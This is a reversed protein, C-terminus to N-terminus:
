HEAYRLCWILCTGVLALIAWNRGRFPVARSSIERDALGLFGPVVIAAILLLWLAPEAIFVFSGAYWRPNFPFFPRVGYNNTWDLLIHSLLAILSLVYIWPWHVPAPTEKQSDAHVARHRRHGFWRHILWIVGTVVAAEFPIGLFTHTWGRHHEFGAVPGEFGWLVDLDPTEAALTMALTAYAAKRNLGARSLVAGTMLHTVPEMHTGAYRAQHGISTIHRCQWHSFRLDVRKQRREFAAPQRLRLPRVGCMQQGTGAINM